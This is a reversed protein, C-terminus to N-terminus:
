VSQLWLAKWENLTTSPQRIFTLNASRWPWRYLGQGTVKKMFWEGKAGRKEKATRTLLTSCLKFHAQNQTLCRAHLSLRQWCFQGDMDWAQTSLSDTCINNPCSLTCWKQSRAPHTENNRQEVSDCLVCRYLNWHEWQKNVADIDCRLSLVKEGECAWHITVPMCLFPLRMVITSCGYAVSHTALELM